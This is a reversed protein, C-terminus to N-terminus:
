DKPFYDSIVATTGHARHATGFADNVYVDAYGALKKALEKQRAKMEAKAAKKEEAVKESEIKDKALIYIVELMPLYLEGYNSDGDMLKCFQKLKGINKSKM